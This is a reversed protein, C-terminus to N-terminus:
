WLSDDLFSYLAKKVAALDARSDAALRGRRILVDIETDRLEITVCKLGKRRRNRHRAMRLAGASPRGAANDRPDSM